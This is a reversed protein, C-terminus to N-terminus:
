TAPNELPLIVGKKSDISDMPTGKRPMVLFINYERHPIYRDRYGVM